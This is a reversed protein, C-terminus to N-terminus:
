LIKQPSIGSKKWYEIRQKKTSKKIPKAAAYTKKRHTETKAPIQV